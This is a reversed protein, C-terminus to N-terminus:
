CQARPAGERRWWDVEAMVHGKECKAGFCECVHRSSAGLEDLDQEFTNNGLVLYDQELEPREVIELDEAVVRQKLRGGNIAFDLLDATM